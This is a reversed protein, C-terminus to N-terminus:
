SVKGKEMQIQILFKEWKGESEEEGDRIYNGM